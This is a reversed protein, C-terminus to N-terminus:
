VEVVIKSAMGHGMSLTTSGIKVSVPGWLIMASIKKVTLGERIGLARLRDVIRNGGDISVVRGEQGPKLDVLKIIARETM